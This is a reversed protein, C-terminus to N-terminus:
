VEGSFLDGSYCWAERINEILIGVDLLIQEINNATDYTLNFHTTAGQPTSPFAKFFSGIKLVNGFYRDMDEKTPLDSMKWDTKVVPEFVYGADTLRRSVYEVAGEVRNMDTYNYAGKHASLWETKEDDTMAQWGKKKLEKWRYVDAATRDTVLGRLGYYAVTSTQSTNGQEDVITLHIRYIDDSAREAEAEWIYEDTHTWTVAVDNVTGSVYLTSPPLTVSITQSM